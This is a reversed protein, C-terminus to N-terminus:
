PTRPSEQVRRSSCSQCHNPGRMRSAFYRRRDNGDRSVRCSHERRLAGRSHIFLTRYISEHSVQMQQNEPYTTKLWCAIQEPSWREALKEAVVGALVPNTALKYVQPRRSHSWAIQDASAARYRCTRKAAMSDTSASHLVFRPVCFVRRHALGTARQKRRLPRDGGTFSPLAWEQRRSPRV